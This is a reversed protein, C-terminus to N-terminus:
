LPFSLSIYWGSNAHSNPNAGEVTLTANLLLVGQQAWPILSGNKESPMRFTDKLDTQLEKFINRLSPPPTTGKKVSFCL